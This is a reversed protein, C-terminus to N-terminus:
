QKFIDIIFSQIVIKLSCILSFIKIFSIKNILPM